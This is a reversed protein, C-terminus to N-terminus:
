CSSRLYSKPNLFICILSPVLIIAIVCSSGVGLLTVMSLIRIFANSGEGLFLFPVAGALTTGTAALLSSIRNRILFYFRKQNIFRKDTLFNNFEGAVLVSANVAMGSVAVLSCAVATNIPVGAIVLILVPIALSPPIVSLIVLPLIFSENAAAIVM